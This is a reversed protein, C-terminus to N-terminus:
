IVRYREKEKRIYSMHPKNKRDCEGGLRRAQGESGGGESKM